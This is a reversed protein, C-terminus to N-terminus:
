VVSRLRNVSWCRSGPAISFRADADNGGMTEFDKKASRGCFHGGVGIALAYCSKRLM